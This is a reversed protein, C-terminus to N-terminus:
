ETPKCYVGPSRREIVKHKVLRTLMHAVSNYVVKRPKGLKETIIDVLKTLTICGSSYVIDIILDRYTGRPAREVKVKKKKTDRATLVGSGM